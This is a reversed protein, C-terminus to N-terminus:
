SVKVEKHTYTHTYYVIHKRGLIISMYNVHYIIDYIISM